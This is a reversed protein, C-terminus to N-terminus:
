DFRNLVINDSFDVDDDMELLVDDTEILLVNDVIDYSKIVDLYLSKSSPIKRPKSKLQNSCVVQLNGRFRPRSFLSWIETGRKVEWFM